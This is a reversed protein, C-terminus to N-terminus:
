PERRGRPIYSDGRSAEEGRAAQKAADSDRTAEVEKQQAPTLRKDSTQHAPLGREKRLKYQKWLRDKRMGRIRSASIGKGKGSMQVQRGEPSLVESIMVAMDSLANYLAEALIEGTMEFETGANISKETGADIGLAAMRRRARSGRGSANQADVGRQDPSRRGRSNARVETEEGGKAKRPKLDSKGDLTRDTATRTQRTLNGERDKSMRRGYREENLGLANYLNELKENM